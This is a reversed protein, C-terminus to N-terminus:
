LPRWVFLDLLAVGILTLLLAIRWARDGFTMNEANFEFIDHKM